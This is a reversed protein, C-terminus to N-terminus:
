FESGVGLVSSPAPVLTEGVARLTEITSDRRFLREGTMLEWLVVGLSFIDSRRDPREGRLTEPQIYAYKGKLIGTETEHEQREAIAIGFDCLKVVGDYTVVLNEPSVDRHVVNM